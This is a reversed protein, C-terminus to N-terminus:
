TLPDACAVGSMAEKRRDRQLMPLEVNVELTSFEKGHDFRVDVKENDIEVYKNIVAILDRQLNPLFDPGQRGAREYAMVIQLREKAQAAPTPQGSTRRFFDFLRM